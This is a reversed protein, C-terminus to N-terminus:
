RDLATLDPAPAQVVDCHKGDAALALQYAPNALPASCPRVDNNEHYIAGALVLVFVGVLELGSQGRGENFVGIWVLGLLVVVATLIVDDMVELNRAFHLVVALAVILAWGTLIFGWQM